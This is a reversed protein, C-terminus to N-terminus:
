KLRLRGIAIQPVSSLENARYSQVDAAKNSRNEECWLLTKQLKSTEQLCVSLHVRMCLRVAAHIASASHVMHWPLM